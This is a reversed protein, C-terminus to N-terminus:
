NRSRLLQRKQFRFYQEIPLEVTTGKEAASEKVNKVTTTEAYAAMSGLLTSGILAATLFAAKMRNRLTNNRM